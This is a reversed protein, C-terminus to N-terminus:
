ESSAREIASSRERAREIARDSAGESTRESAREIARETTAMSQAPITKAIFAAPVSTAKSELVESTEDAEVGTSLAGIDASISVFM